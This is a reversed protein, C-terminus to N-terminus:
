ECLSPRKFAMSCAFSAGFLLQILQQLSRRPSGSVSHTLSASHAHNGRIRWFKQYPWLVRFAGSDDLFVSNNYRYYPEETLAFREPAAYIEAAIQPKLDPAAPRKRVSRAPPKKGATNGM